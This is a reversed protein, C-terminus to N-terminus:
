PDAVGPPQEKALSANLEETGAALRRAIESTLGLAAIDIKVEEQGRPACRIADFLGDAAQTLRRRIEGEIQAAETEWHAIWAEREEPSHWFRPGEGREARFRRRAAVELQRVQIIADEVFGNRGHCSFV